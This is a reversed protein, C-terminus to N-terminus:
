DNRRTQHQSNLINHSYKPDGVDSGAMKMQCAIPTGLSLHLSKVVAMVFRFALICYHM